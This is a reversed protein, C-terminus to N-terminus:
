VAVEKPTEIERTSVPIGPCAGGCCSRQIGSSHAGGRGCGRVTKKLGRPDHFSDDHAGRVARSGVADADEKVRDRLRNRTRISAPYDNWARTGPRTSSRRAGTPTLRTQSSSESRGAVRSYLFLLLYDTPLGDILTSTRILQGHDSARAASGAPATQIDGGPGRAAEARSASRKARPQSITVSLRPGRQRDM